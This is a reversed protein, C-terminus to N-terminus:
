SGASSVKPVYLRDCFDNVVQVEKQALLKSRSLRSHSVAEVFTHRATFDNFESATLQSEGDSFAELQVGYPASIRSGKKM